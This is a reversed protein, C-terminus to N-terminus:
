GGIPVYVPCGPDEPKVLFGRETCKATGDYNACKGCTGERYNHILGAVTPNLGAKEASIALDSKGDEMTPLIFTSTGYARCWAACLLMYAFSFHPDIGIKVVKRRMKHEDDDKETVLATKMFHAWVVDRLVPMKRKVGKEDIDQVLGAPDPFLTTKRIIRGFAWSMMKYQDLALTYRDRADEDTKRDAKSLVADGWQLMDDDINKYSSVLFVRGQWRQAFQKASDYNPLQECVCVAVRYDEMLEDLRAWPNIGYIAEAHILAMRGDPLRESLLVCSFGGMNDVGMFTQKGTTKWVIGARKGEDACANLIELNIPVQTPDTYPKGLKRNYFNKIDKAHQYAEIIERPTITPSLFQAFHVSIINRNTPEATARFEGHQADEIWGSCQKCVYVYENLPAGIIAGENFRICEPFEEDFLHEAGCHACKTFFRLQNGKKYFFNIDADPWNATSGMITFKIRSASLRESTKEMDDIVMEQVEDFSLVDLPISETMAKGSTWMFHFHSDGMSRTLVNGEGSKGDEGVLMRYAVPVTRIIPMFRISSKVGALKMDPLYMGIKCPQWKLAFYIAALMELVTFGVQACKQLVLTKGFAQEPSSPILDYIFRMAPRNELNFAIGDVKLGDKGLQICWDTFTMDGPIIIEKPMTLQVKRRRRLELEAMAMEQASPKAM